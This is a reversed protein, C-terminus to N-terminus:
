GEVDVQSEEDARALPELSIDIGDGVASPSKASPEKRIAVATPPDSSASAPCRPYIFFEPPLSKMTDTMGVPIMPERGCIKHAFACCDYGYNFIVNSSANFEEEMEKMEKTVKAQFTLLEEKSAGLEMILSLREDILRYNEEEAKQRAEGAAVM